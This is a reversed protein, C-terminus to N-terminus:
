ETVEKVQIPSLDHIFGTIGETEITWEGTLFFRSTFVTMGEDVFIEISSADVFIRISQVMDYHRHAQRVTGYETAYLETMNSRDLTYMERDSYFEIADGEANVISFRFTEQLTGEIEFGRRHIESKSQLRRSSHRLDKLEALPSQLLYRGKISLERPITLMHAWMNRDTPYASKSNGLWGYMIQRGQEDQYVQPAYFDFGKDMEVYRQHKFDGTDFNLHDGILYVVSFVNNFENPDESTAGQPAFLLIGRGELEFYSPCEWMYGFNSVDLQLPRVLSVDELEQKYLLITGEHDVNEAGVFLYIEDDKRYPVPDRFNYTMLNFDPYIIPGKKHIVGHSDCQAICQVQVFKGEEDKVNGTYYIVLYDEQSLAGGSFCGHQDYLTDPKLAVGHDTYHIFDKTSLHYWHKLGHVPGLPFWQYFIHHIGEHYVLGNPDNLLGHPPAIHYTPYYLDNKSKNRIDLVYEESIDDLTIFRNERNSFDIVM